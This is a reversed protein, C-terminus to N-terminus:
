CQFRRGLPSGDDRHLTRGCTPHWKPAPSDGRVVGYILADSRGNDNGALNGTMGTVLRAAGSNGGSGHSVTRPESPAQEVPEHILDDRRLGVGVDLVQAAHRALEEGVVWAEFLELADGVRFSLQQSALCGASPAARLCAV